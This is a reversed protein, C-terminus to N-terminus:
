PRSPWGKMRKDEPEFFVALVAGLLITTLSPVPTRVEPMPWSLVSRIAPTQAWIAYRLDWPTSTM